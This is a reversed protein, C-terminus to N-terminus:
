RFVELSVGLSKTIQRMTQFAPRTTRGDEIRTVVSPLLGSERALRYITWGKQERLLRLRQGLSLQKM